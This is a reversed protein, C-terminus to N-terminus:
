NTVSEKVGEAIIPLTLIIESKESQLSGGLLRATEKALRLAPPECQVNRSIAPQEANKEGALRCVLRINHSDTAFSWTIRAAPGANRQLCDIVESFIIELLSPDGPVRVTYDPLVIDSVSLSEPHHETLYNRLAAAIDVRNNHIEQADGISILARTLRAAYKASREVAHIDNLCVSNEGLEAEILSSRGLVGTMLNGFEKGIETILSQSSSSITRDSPSGDAHPIVIFGDAHNGNVRSIRFMREVAGERSQIDITGAPENLFDLLRPSEEPSILELFPKKTLADAHAGVIECFGESVAKICGNGDLLCVPEKTKQLTFASDAGISHRKKLRDAARLLPAATECILQLDDDVTDKLESENETFYLLLVGCQGSDDRVPYSRASGYNIEDCRPFLPENTRSDVMWESWGLVDAPLRHEPPIYEAIMKTDESEPDAVIFAARLCGTLEAAQRCLNYAAAQPNEFIAELFDHLLKKQRIIKQQTNVSEERRAHISAAANIRAAFIDILKLDEVEPSQPQQFGLLLRCSDENAAAIRCVIQYDCPEVQRDILGAEFSVTKVQSGAATPIDSACEKVDDIRGEEIGVSATFSRSGYRCELLSWATTLSRAVENLVDRCAQEFSEGSSLLIEVHQIFNIRDNLKLCQQQLDAAERSATLHEQHVICNETVDVAHVLCGIFEECAHVPTLVAQLYRIDESHSLTLLRSVPDTKGDHFEKFAKRILEADSALGFVDPLVAPEATKSRSKKNSKKFYRQWSRSAAVIKWDSDVLCAMGHLSDLVTQPYCSALPLNTPTIKKSEAM